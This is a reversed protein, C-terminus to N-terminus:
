YAYHQYYPDNLGPGDFTGTSNLFGALPYFGKHDNVFINAAVMIQQLKAACAARRSAERAKALSPLLIGILVAIIGIVVLLEVLTFASFGRENQMPRSFRKSKSSVM